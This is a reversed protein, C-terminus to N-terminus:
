CPDEGADGNLEIAAGLALSSADVWLIAEDEAVGWRGRAPDSSQVCKLTEEVMTHLRHYSDEDDWSTITM